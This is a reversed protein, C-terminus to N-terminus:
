DSSGESIATLTMTQNHLDCTGTGYPSIEGYSYFGIQQTAAPLVDLTAEIEEETREGLVLRRGVCSVAIALTPTGDDPVGGIMTAADSAGDVLRDMNARMLQALAGQPIDGAFTMSQDAEDVRLITRVLSNEQRDNARLTLPFLLATAPLGAALEGLYEKYIGLAPANDLEYLVNGESRTVRRELGFADWGGKSGHGIRLADGYLGVATVFGTRPQNDVLTWTQQFRDGDAALGGTVIVNKGLVGNLGALLTSGNVRLGDSFLLVGRLEPDALERALAQGAAHSASPGSIAVTATALRVSEFRAVAVAVSDDQLRAGLIEGATSCGVIHAHPYTGALTAFPEIQDMFGPAGFALVLTRESDLAPLSGESWGTQQDYSFTSIDM